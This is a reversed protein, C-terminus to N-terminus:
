APTQPQHDGQGPQSMRELRAAEAKGILRAIVELCQAAQPNTDREAHLKSVLEYSLEPLPANFNGNNLWETAKLGWEALENALAEEAESLPEHEETLDPTLPDPVKKPM